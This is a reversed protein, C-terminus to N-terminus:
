PTTSWSRLFWPGFSRAEDFGKIGEPMRAFAGQVVDEAAERDRLILYAARVSRAYHRRVLPEMGDIDGGKLRAIARWEEM